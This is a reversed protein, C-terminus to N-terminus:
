AAKGRGLNRWAAIDINTPEDEGADIQATRQLGHCAVLRRLTNNDYDGSVSRKAARVTADSIGWVRSLGMESCRTERLIRVIAAHRALTPQATTDRQIVRRVEVGHREAEEAIIRSVTERDPWRRRNLNSM